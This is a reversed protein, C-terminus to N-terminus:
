YRLIFKPQKYTFTVITICFELLTLAGKLLDKLSYRFIRGFNIGIANTFAFIMAKFIGRTRLKGKYNLKEKFEKMTAEVNNRCSRRAKPLNKISNKRKNLLYDEHSFYLKKGKKNISCSDKLECENCINKDFKAKFRSKTEDANITQHLCKVYYEESQEDFFIEYTNDSKRGRVGTQIQTINYQELIKDNIENGYGGDTHLEKLDSTQEFIDDIRNSLITSDDINNKDVSVDTLLNIPNKPDATEFGNIKYGQNKEGNKNRYTADEDYPSQLTDSPLENSPILNVRKKSLVKFHEKFAREFKLFQEVDKYLKKNRIHRYVRNYLQGLKNIEHPLESPVLNYIFDKAKKDSYIELEKKFFILDCKELIKVLNLFVELLLQLRSSKKINSSVLTSDTRQIKTSINLKKIEKNSLDKFLDEFLNIKTCKFYFQVRNSFNFITKYTFPQTTLDKLGLSLKTLINFNLENFLQKYSWNNMEKLILSGVMINIPANPRNSENSYLQKFKTEDISCFVRDYFFTAELFAKDKLQNPSLQDELSFLNDQYHSINEKFM